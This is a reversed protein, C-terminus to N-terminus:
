RADPYLDHVRAHLRALGLLADINPTPMKLRQGLEHVVGVIADIELPRGAEADQLMSTKFAGLKATIKSRDEPTQEIPCGLRAGIAAAERMVGHCFALVLPDALIRDATAGTIASIPNTTMNGWLKYWIDRRVNASATAEFGARQLLGALRKVRESEGGSPEGVILGRGMNHLVHGPEPVSASLHVVCGIVREIPIARGIAGGPDVSELPGDGADKVGRAFWWPVGNMAPVVMTDKGLLPALRRAVEGLAPGKVAVIVVDQVGLEAPDESATAPATVTKGAETLRWGHTRLSHLTPGRALASVRAEGAAALKTGILGGVAGAGVICVKM